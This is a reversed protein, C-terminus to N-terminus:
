VEHLVAGLEATASSLIKLFAIELFLSAILILHWGYVCVLRRIQMKNDTMEFCGGQM